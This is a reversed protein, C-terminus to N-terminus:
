AGRREVRWPPNKRITGAHFLCIENGSPDRLWAERWLWPRDVPRVDFVFGRGELEAVLEDLRATEFYVKVGPAAPATECNEVSFTSDGETCEFRAYHDSDVIQLFGMRRFFAASQAVDRAPLTVQNLNM